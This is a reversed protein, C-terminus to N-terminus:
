SKPHYEKTKGKRHKPVPKYEQKTVKAFWEETKSDIKHSRRDDAETKLEHMYNETLM